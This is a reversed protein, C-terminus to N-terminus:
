HREIVQELERYLRELTELRIAIETQEAQVKNVNAHLAEIEGKTPNERAFDNFAAQLMRIEQQTTTLHRHLLPMGDLHAKIPALEAKLTALMETRLGTINADIAQLLEVMRDETM